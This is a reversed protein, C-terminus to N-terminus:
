TQMVEQVHEWRQEMAIRWAPQAQRMPETLRILLWYATWDRLVDAAPMAGDTVAYGGLLSDSLDASPPGQLYRLREVACFSGLDAGVPALTSRDLDIVRVGGDARVIVQDASFDGHSWHRSSDACDQTIRSLVEAAVPYVRQALRPGLVALEDLAARMGAQPSFVQLNAPIENVHRAHWRALLEGSASAGQHDPAALLDVGEVWPWATVRKGAVVGPMRLPVSVEIGAAALGRACAVITNQPHATLRLVTEGCGLVLRRHPNYRLVKAGAGAGLAEVMESPLQDLARHLRPDTALQGHVALWTRGLPQVTVARGREDARRQANVIKDQASHAVLQVWGCDPGSPPGYSAVSGVGPKHRIRRAVVRHGVLESLWHEDLLLDIPGTRSKLGVDTVTRASM